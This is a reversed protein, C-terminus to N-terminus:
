CRWPPRAVLVSLALLVLAPLLFLWAITGRGLGGSAFPSHHPPPQARPTSSM